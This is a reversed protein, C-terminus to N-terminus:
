KHTRVLRHRCGKKHGLHVRADFLDKLSFLESVLFFDPKELPLKMIKETPSFCITILIMTDYARGGPKCETTHGGSIDDTQYQPSKVPAATAYQPGGCAYGVTVVRLPRLGLLGVYFVCVDIM